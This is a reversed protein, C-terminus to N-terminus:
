SLYLSQPFNQLFSLEYIGCSKNTTILLLMTVLNGGIKKTIASMYLLSLCLVNGGFPDFSCTSGYLLKFFFWVIRYRCQLLWLCINISKGDMNTLWVCVLSYVTYLEAFSPCFFIIINFHFDLRNLVDKMNM